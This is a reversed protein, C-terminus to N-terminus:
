NIPDRTTYTYILRVFSRLSVFLHTYIYVFMRLIAHVRTM